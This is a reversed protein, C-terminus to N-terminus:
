IDSQGTCQEIWADNAVLERSDREMKDVWSLPLIGHRNGRRKKRKVTTFLASM